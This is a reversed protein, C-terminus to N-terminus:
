GAYGESRAVVLYSQMTRDPAASSRDAQGIQRGYTLGLQGPIALQVSPWGADRFTALPDDTTFPPPLGRAARTALNPRMSPLTLLGSGFVDAAMLSGVGSLRRTEALLDRVARGSLYFLLGEALWGARCGAEFGAALLATSWDATLDAVVVTRQCGAVAGLAALIPEKEAFLEARDIEFWRLRAPVALRFARTDLGAGLLVVQDLREAEACLLDDFFRTRIPLFANEGGSAGESAALEDRGRAGALAAAYPDDFLRDARGSERARAAAVWHATRPDVGSSSEDPM